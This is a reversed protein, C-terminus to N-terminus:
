RYIEHFFLESISHNCIDMVKFICDNIKSKHNNDSFISLYYIVKKPSGLTGGYGGGIPPCLTGWLGRRHNIFRKYFCIFYVIMDEIYVRTRLRVQARPDADLRKYFWIFYVIM